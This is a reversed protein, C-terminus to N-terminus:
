RLRFYHEEAGATTGLVLTQQLNTALVDEGAQWTKLDPSRELRYLAGAELRCESSLNGAADTRLSILRPFEEAEWPRRRVPYGQRRLLNPVSERGVFHGVGAVVLTTNTEQLWGEIQAVWNTNRSLVLRAYAESDTDRDKEMVARVGEVDGQEWAALLARNDQIVEETHTLFEVLTREQDAPSGGSLLGFQFDVSELALRPKGAEGALNWYFSDVSATTLFGEAKLREILLLDTLYWPALYSPPVQSLLPIPNAAVYTDVLDCTTQAVRQCLGDPPLLFALTVLDSAREELEDLDVEFALRDAEAYAEAFGPPLQGEPARVHISGLLLVTGKPGTVEWLPSPEASQGQPILLISVLVQIIALAVASVFPSRSHSIM